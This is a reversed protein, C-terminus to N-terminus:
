GGRRVSARPTWSEPQWKEDRAVKPLAARKEEVKDKNPYAPGPTKAVGSQVIKEPTRTETASGAGGVAHAPPAHVNEVTSGAHPLASPNHASASTGPTMVASDPISPPSHAQSNASGPSVLMDM